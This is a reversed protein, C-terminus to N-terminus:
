LSNSWTSATKFPNVHAPVFIVRDLGSLERIQEALILHGNHVPNFSGGFVGIKEAM